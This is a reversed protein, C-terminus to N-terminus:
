RVHRHRDLLRMQLEIALREDADSLDLGSLEELRRLRYRFTNPHVVLRRSATAVDGFCDLYTRLTLMYDTSKATDHDSLLRLPGELLRPDDAALDLMRLLVVRAREEEIAAWGRDNKTESLVRLVQDAEWRSRPVAAMGDARGGVGSLVKLRLSSRVRQLVQPVLARVRARAVQPEAGIEPLLTYVRRGIAACSAGPANSQAHLAVIDALREVLVVADPGDVGELEFVVVTVPEDVALGLQFTFMEPPLRGDLAARVSEARHRREENDGDRHRLLHLAALRAASRLATEAEDGLSGDLEAVWISGLLEGGAHVGVAMRPRLEDTGPLRVVEDSSALRRFLGADRYARVYEEIVRRGLIAQRRPEDVDQSGHSYALVVSRPDEITVPGGVMDAIADALRFLDGAPVGVGVAATAGASCLLAYLRGWSVDPPAMLLTMHCRTAADVAMGVDDIEPSAIIVASAGCAAARPLLDQLDRVRSGVALVIDNALVGALDDAPCIVAPGVEIELGRPAAVVSVTGPSLRKLVAQLTPPGHVRSVDITRNV